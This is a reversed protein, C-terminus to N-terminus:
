KKLMYRYTGGQSDIPIAERWKGLEIRPIERRADLLAIGGKALLRRAAEFIPVPDGLRDAAGHSVVLAYGGRGLKEVMNGFHCIRFRLNPNKQSFERHQPLRALATADIRFGAGAEHAFDAAERGTGAGLFLARKKGSAGAAERLYNMIDLGYYNRLAALPRDWAGGWGKLTAGGMDLGRGERLMRSLDDRAEFVSELAARKSPAANQLASARAKGVMDQMIAKKFEETSPVVVGRGAYATEFHRRKERASRELWGPFDRTKIGPLPRKRRM